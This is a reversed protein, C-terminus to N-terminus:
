RREELAQLRSLIAAVYSLPAFELRNAQRDHGLALERLIGVEARLALTQALLMHEKTKLEHHSDALRDLDEQSAPDPKQRLVGLQRSISTHLTASQALQADLRDVAQQVMTQLADLRTLVAGLHALPAWEKENRQREHLLSLRELAQVRGDLRGLAMELGVVVPDPTLALRAAEEVMSRMTKFAQNLADAKLPGPRFEIIEAGPLHTV